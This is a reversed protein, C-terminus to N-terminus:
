TPRSAAVAPRAGGGGRVGRPRCSRGRGAGRGRARNARRAHAGELLWRDPGRGRARATAQRAQEEREKQAREAREAEAREAQSRFGAPPAFDKRIAEALYAGVDKVKKPKTERLWDVVEIQHRIRDAPFDRVLEAAVSGTVGRDVLEQELGMPKPEPEPEPKPEFLAREIDRPVPGGKRTFAKFEAQAKPGPSYVMMWDSCGERDTTAEFAIEALYSSGLHPAHVKAMQKRMPGFGTYRTQPAHRCFESYRMRARPQGHKLAAFVHYSLLEYLRQSAPPLVQIYDYDLPRVPASDLVERYLDHLLIYVADARRGDPLTEGTMVVTYRTTGFEISKRTGDIAKYRIKATIFAGANQYLARKIDAKNAGSDVLGLERCIDTLSGLRLVRPIPRGAEDLKRSVVLTDIKYGLPGPQGYRSNHSVEWRLALEGAATTERIEIPVTGLKALRHIPFRSLVTEVRIVDLSVLEAKM